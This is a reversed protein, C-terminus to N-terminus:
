KEIIHAEVFSITAGRRYLAVNINFEEGRHLAGKHYFLGMEILNEMKIFHRGVRIFLRM